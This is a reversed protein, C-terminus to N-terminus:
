ESRLPRAPAVALARRAPRKMAVTAAGALLLAAGTRAAADLPSIDPLFGAPLRAAAGATLVLAVAGLLTVAHARFLLRAGFRLDQLGSSM